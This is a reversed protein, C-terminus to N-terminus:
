TGFMQTWYKGERGLGQRRQKESLMNKHHGPSLFWAKIAEISVNSGMYINEGSAATGALKARDWPTKKGPVPSEHAFFNRSQMDGSHGRAAECLKLDYVLPRLGCMVRIANVALMGVVLNRDLDPEMAANQEYVKRAEEEEPTIFQGLQQEAKKIFEDVPLPPNDKWQGALLTLAAISQQIQAAARSVKVSRAANQVSRQRYLM